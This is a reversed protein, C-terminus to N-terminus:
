ITTGGVSVSGAPMEFQAMPPPSTDEPPPPPAAVVASAGGSPTASHLTDVTIPVSDSLYGRGEIPAPLAPKEWTDAPSGVAVPVGSGLLQNYTHTDRAAGAAMDAHYAQAAPTTWGEGSYGGPAVPTWGPVGRDQMPTHSADYVGSMTPIGYKQAEAAQDRGTMTRGQGYWYGGASASSPIYQPDDATMPRGFDAKTAGKPQGSLPSGDVASVWNTAGVRSNGPNLMSPGSYGSSGGPTGGGTPIDLKRVHKGGINQVPANMFQQEYNPIQPLLDVPM